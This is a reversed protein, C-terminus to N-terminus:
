PPALTRGKLLRNGINGSTDSYVSIWAHLLGDATNGYVVKAPIGQSRLMAATLAAYDVCIGKKQELVTDPKSKYGSAPTQLEYDYYINKIVYRYIADIKEASESLGITLEKAKKICNSDENFRIMSSAYLFPLHEAELAVNLKAVLAAAYKTDIVREWITVRYLGDGETFTIAEYDGDTNLHYQYTSAVGDKKIQVLVKDATGTYRCMVYGQNTHSYDLEAAKTTLRLEGTSPLLATYGSVGEDAYANLPSVLILFAILTLFIRRYIM